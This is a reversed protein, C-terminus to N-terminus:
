SGLESVLDVRRPFEKDLFFNTLSEKETKVNSVKLQFVTWDNLVRGYTLSYVIDGERLVEFMYGWPMEKVDVNPSKAATHVTCYGNFVGVGQYNPPPNLGAFASLSLFAIGTLGLRFM